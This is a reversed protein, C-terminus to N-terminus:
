AQLICKSNFNTAIHVIKWEKPNTHSPTLLLIEFMFDFLGPENWHMREMCIRFSIM